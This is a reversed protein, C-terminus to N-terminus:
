YNEALTVRWNTVTNQFTYSEVNGEALVISGYTLKEYNNVWDHEDEEMEEEEIVRVCQM